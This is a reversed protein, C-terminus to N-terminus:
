RDWEVEVSKIDRENYATVEASVHKGSWRIGDVHFQFGPGVQEQALRIAEKASDGHTVLQMLVALGVVFLAGCVFASKPPSDTRGADRRASLVESSRLQHYIWIMLLVLLLAVGFGSLVEAFHMRIQLLWLAPPQLFPMLLLFVGFATAFLAAFWTVVRVTALNGRHLLIGAILAFVNLSSSYSIGNLICYIMVGIDLVGTIILVAGVRKLTKLYDDM